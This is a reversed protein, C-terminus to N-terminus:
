EMLSEFYFGCFQNKKHEPNQLLQELLSKRIGSIKVHTELWRKCILSCAKVVIESQNSTYMHLATLSFLLRTCTKEDILDFLDQSYKSANPLMRKFSVHVSVSLWLDIWFSWIKDLESTPKKSDLLFNNWRQLYFILEQINKESLVKQEPQMRLLHGITQLAYIPACQFEFVFSLLESTDPCFSLIKMFEKKIPDGFQLLSSLHEKLHQMLFIHGDTSCVNWVQGAIDLDSYTHCALLLGMRCRSTFKSTNACHNDHQGQLVELIRTVCTDVNKLRSVINLAVESVRSSSDIAHCTSSLINLFRSSYQRDKLFELSHLIIFFSVELELSCGGMTGKSAAFAFESAASAKVILHEGFLEFSVLNLRLSMFVFFKNWLLSPEISSSLLDCLTEVLDPPFAKLLDTHMEQNPVQFLIECLIDLFLFVTSGPLLVTIQLFNRIFSGLFDIEHCLVVTITSIGRLIDEITEKQFSAWVEFCQNFFSLVQGIEAQSLSDAYFQALINTVWRIKVVWRGFFLISICLIFRFFM